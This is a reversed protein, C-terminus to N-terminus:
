PLEWLVIEVPANRQRLWIRLHAVMLEVTPTTVAEMEM